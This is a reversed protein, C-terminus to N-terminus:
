FYFRLKLSATNTYESDHAYSFGVGLWSLPNYMLGLGAENSSVTLYNHALWGDFELQDIVRHRLGIEIRYGDDSTITTGNDLRHNVYLLHTYIDDREGLGDEGTFGVEYNKTSLGGTDYDLPQYGARFQVADLVTGSFVAYPGKADNGGQPMVSMRGVEFYDYQFNPTDALAPLPALLASLLLATSRVTIGKM